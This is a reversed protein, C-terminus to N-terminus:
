KVQRPRWNEPKMNPEYKRERLVLLLYAKANFIVACLADEIGDRSPYGDVELAVDQVHRMLSEACSAEPFGSQWNDADRITGDPQTRHKHMYEAYRQRVIASEFGEFNFKGVDADRTAGTEFTRVKSAM